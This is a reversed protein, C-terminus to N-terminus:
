NIRHYHTILSRHDPLAEVAQAAAQRIRAFATMADAADEPRAAIAGTGAQTEFGLGHLIFAWSPPLFTQHDVVFDFRSPLRCRWQAIKDRLGEPWSAPDTNDRWYATDARRSAAYHLKLFEVIADFRAPM